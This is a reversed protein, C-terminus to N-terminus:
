KSQNNKIEIVYKCYASLMNEVTNGIVEKEKDDSAMFIKKIFKIKLDMSDATHVSNSGDNSKKYREKEESFDHDLFGVWDRKRILDGYKLYFPGINEIPWLTETALVFSLRKNNRLAKEEEFTGKKKLAYIRALFKLSSNFENALTLLPDM